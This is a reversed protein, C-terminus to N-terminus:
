SAVEALARVIRETGVGRSGKVLVLDGPRVATAVYPAADASTSFFEVAMGAESARDAIRKAEGGVAIVCSAGSSGAARGVDDHGRESEVGLEYMAGLVLVLRRSAARAIEAAARISAASSAPNANYSDDIVVVDNSLVRPVLRGAGGGVEAAGFAAEAMESTVRRGTLAEVAAVAAACAYAGAEGLLPTRFDLVSGDYRALRLQAHTLGDARRDAIRVHLGEGTGYRIQWQVSATEMQEMVRPDDANGVAIGNSQLARYLAGKEHAVGEISGVGEVHAASVLTVIALDPPAIEGLAEIEGPQNMGMELVAVRHSPELCLAMMPVGVRNNLNGQTALVAGEGLVHGFLAATAVRTTTKGASGTIAVISKGGGPRRWRTIHLHALQGLACLAEPVQLVAVGEPAQYPREVVLLRAGKKVAEALYDHGDFADGRLAVFIAGPRLTRTDTSIPGMPALLEASDPISIVGLDMNSLDALTFRAENQPIPTAM